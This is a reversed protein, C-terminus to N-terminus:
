RLWDNARVDPMAKVDALLADLQTRQYLRGRLVVAAIRRTNRIDALPDADLLVLDAVKGSAITGVSDALGLWEAPKRTASTLAEMPTMGLSDVFLRLEEHLSAGPFINLVAVDSGAMIRVGSERMERMLKLGTRFYPILAARREPTAEDAQEKWDLITFASMYPRLPHVAGITDAVLARFYETPRFVSETITVMTPVVGVDRRALERWFAMREAKPIADWSPPFGHEVGDQEAELFAAPSSAVMHGVLRKRHAHAAQALALYTASDQVTRVKFFDLELASLSDIVRRADAPTGIAIRAREFPEVRSEPPDRRMREINRLSELYPGAILMRPGVRTGARVERRWRLVEAHESGMDRLTTVGHLVYLGLASARTKSTHGHMEFLGPILYKGTGDIITAGDPPHVENMAGIRVIRSGSITVTRGSASAAGTMPIVTVNQIVTAAQAGASEVLSTSMAFLVLGFRRPM